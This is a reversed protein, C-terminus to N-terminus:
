MWELVDRERPSLPAEAAPLGHSPGEVPRVGLQALERALREQRDFPELLHVIAGEDPRAGPIRVTSVHFALAPQRGDLDLEFGRVAEGRRCMALAACDEHCFRNGFVDRGALLEHCRRGLAQRAPRGLLKEAAPNWMLVHGSLDSAMAALNGARFPELAAARLD